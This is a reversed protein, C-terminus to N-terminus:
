ADCGFLARAEDWRTGGWGEYEDRNGAAVLTALYWAGIARMDMREHRKRDYLPKRYTM